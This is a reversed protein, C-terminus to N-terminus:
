EPVKPLPMWWRPQHDPMEYDDMESTDSFYSRGTRRNFKWSAIAVHGPMYNDEKPWGCLLPPGNEDKPATEIPLWNM